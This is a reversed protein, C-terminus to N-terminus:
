DDWSNIWCECNSTEFLIKKCEFCRNSNYNIHKYFFETLSYILYKCIKM